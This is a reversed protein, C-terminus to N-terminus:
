LKSKPRKQLKNQLFKRTPANDEKESLAQISMLGNAHDKLHLLLHYLNGENSKDALVGEELQSSPSKPQHKVKLIVTSTELAKSRQLATCLSKKLIRSLLIVPQYESSADEKLVKQHLSPKPLTLLLAPM